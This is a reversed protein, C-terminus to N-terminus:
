KLQEDATLTFFSRPIYINPQLCRFIVDTEPSINKPLQTFILFWDALEASLFFLM